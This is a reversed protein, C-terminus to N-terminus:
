ELESEIRNLAENQVILWEDETGVDDFDIGALEDCERLLREALARKDSAQQLFQELAQILLSTEDAHVVQAQHHLQEWLVRPLTLSLEVNETLM